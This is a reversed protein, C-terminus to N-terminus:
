DPAWHDVIAPARLGSLPPGAAGRSGGRGGPRGMYYTGACRTGNAM